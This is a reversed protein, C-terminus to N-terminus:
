HRTSEVEEEDAGALMALEADTLDEVSHITRINQTQVPRGYGRDLLAQAAAVRAAPPAKANDRVVVLAKISAPGELQALVRIDAAIRPRGGPNGSQGKEWGGKGAPNGM